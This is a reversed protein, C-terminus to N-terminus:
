SCYMTPVLRYQIKKKGEANRQTEKIGPYLCFDLKGGKDLKRGAVKYQSLIDGNKEPFVFEYKPYGGAKPAKFITKYNKEIKGLLIKLEQIRDEDLKNLLPLGSIIKEKDAEYRGADDQEEMYDYVKKCIDSIQRYFVTDEKFESGFCDDCFAEMDKWLKIFNIIETEEVREVPLNYIEVRSEYPSSRQADYSNIIADRSIIEDKFCSNMRELGSVQRKLDDNEKYLKDIDIKGTIVKLLNSFFPM